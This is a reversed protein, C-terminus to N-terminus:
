EARAKTDILKLIRVSHPPLAIALRGSEIPVQGGRLVNTASGRHGIAVHLDHVTLVATM